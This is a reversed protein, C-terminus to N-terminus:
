ESSPVMVICSATVGSGDIATATITATGVGVGTVIGSASVTAVSTNNSSWTVKQYIADDPTFRAILVERNGINITTTDKNLTIGTVYNMKPVKYTLIESLNGAKDKARICIEKAGGTRVTITRINGKSFNVTNDRGSQVWWYYGDLGSNEDSASNLSLIVDEDIM